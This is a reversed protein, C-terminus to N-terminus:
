EYNQKCSLVKKWHELDSKICVIRTNVKNDRIDEFVFYCRKKDNLYYVRGHAISNRIHRLFCELDTESNDGKETRKRKCVFRKCKLCITNGNLHGDFLNKENNTNSACIKVYIFHRDLFMKDFIDSHKERPICKSHTSEINPAKHLFYSMLRLVDDNTIEFPPISITELNTSEKKYCDEFCITKEEKKRKPM